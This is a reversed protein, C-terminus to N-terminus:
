NFHCLCATVDGSPCFCSEGTHQLGRQLVRLLASVLQHQLGPTQWVCGFWEPSSVSLASTISKNLFIIYIIHSFLSSLSFDMLAAASRETLITNMRSNDLCMSKCWLASDAAGLCLSSLWFKYIVWDTQNASLDSPTRFILANRSIQRGRCTQRIGCQSETFSSQSSGTNFCLRRGVFCVSPRLLVPAGSVNCIASCAVATTYSVACTFPPTPTSPRGSFLM